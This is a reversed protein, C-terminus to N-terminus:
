LILVCIYAYNRMNAFMPSHVPKVAGNMRATHPIIPTHLKNMGSKNDTGPAIM